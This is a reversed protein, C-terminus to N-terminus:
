DQDQDQGQVQTNRTTPSADCPTNTHHQTKQCVANLKCGACNNLATKKNRMTRYITRVAAFIATAIIISSLTYQIADNISM